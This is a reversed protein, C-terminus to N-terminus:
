KKEGRNKSFLFDERYESPPLWGHKRWVKQVDSGTTWVFRSKQDALFEQEQKQNEMARRRKYNFGASM